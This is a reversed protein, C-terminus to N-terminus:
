LPLDSDIKELERMWREFMSLEYVRDTDLFHSHLKDIFEWVDALTLNNRAGYADYDQIQGAINDGHETLESM